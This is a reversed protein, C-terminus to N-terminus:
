GQPEYDISSQIYKMNFSTIALIVVFMVVGVAAAYGMKSYLFASQYLVLGPVYTSLGPGGNTFVMVDQFNQLQTIITMILILKIQGTIMPVDVHRIRRALGAGDIAAADLLETPIADLGGLYILLNLGSVWPFGYFAISWLASRVDGLWLRALGPLGIARFLTNLVGQQPDYIFFWVLILVMWPVVMPVILFVRWFYATRASKLNFILEAALVPVTIAVLVRFATLKLVNPIANAFAKDITFMEIFNNLGVFQGHVGDWRFLSHFFASVIPYYTFMGLLVFTPLLFLYIPGFKRIFAAAGRQKQVGSVAPPHRLIVESRAM